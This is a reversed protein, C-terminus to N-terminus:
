RGFAWLLFAPLEASWYPWDHQGQPAEKYVINAAPVNKEKLLAIVDQTDDIVDIIGDKDRDSNEEKAGAYFWYQQDPKKRSAKLRAIIIRNKDNNYSSDKTDKDRWWFSGSFVGIKDIKDSHTFGIDFASLGGLSCGAIAFSQFKRVGSKKKIYPYLENNIFDDYHDAKGGRQEYDPKGAVGYQQMRDGAHVAVIVLPKIAKAKWLSDTIAKIRFREADQGDNIILLNLQAHDDPVPTNIVTLLIKQQLHRSYLEDQQQSVGKGCSFFFPIFLPLLSLYKM